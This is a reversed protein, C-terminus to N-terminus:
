ENTLVEGFFHYLDYILIAFAIFVLISLTVMTAKYHKIFLLDGIKKTIENLKIM